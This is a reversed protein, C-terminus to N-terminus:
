VIAATYSAILGEEDEVAAFLFDRHSDDRPDHLIGRGYVRGGDRVADVVEHRAEQQGRRHFFSRLAERGVAFQKGTEGEYVPPRAYEIDESFLEAAEDFRGSDIAALYEVVSTTQGTPHTTM